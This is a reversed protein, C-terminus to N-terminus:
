NAGNKIRGHLTIDVGWKNNGTAEFFRLHANSYKPKSRIAHGTERVSPVKDETKWEKTIGEWM